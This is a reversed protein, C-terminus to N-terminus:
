RIEIEVGVGRHDSNRKPEEWVRRVSLGPSVLFGDIGHGVFRMGTRRSLDGPDKAIQGNWDGGIVLPDPSRNVLEVIHRAFTPYLERFRMPPLHVSAVRIKPGGDIVLDNWVIWRTLMKQSDPDVGLTIDGGTTMARDTRWAIASGARSPSSLDQHVRWAPDIWRAVDLEKTEQLCLIDARAAVADIDSNWKAPSLAFNVNQTIIRITKPLINDPGGGPEEALSFGAAGLLVAFSASFRM